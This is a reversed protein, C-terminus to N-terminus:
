KKARRGGIRIVGRNKIYRQYQKDVAACLADIDAGIASFEVETDHHSVTMTIRIAGDIKNVEMSGGRDALFEILDNVHM